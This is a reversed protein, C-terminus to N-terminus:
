MRPYGALEVATLLFAARRDEDGHVAESGNELFDRPRPMDANQVVAIRSQRLDHEVEEATLTVQDDAVVLRIKDAVQGVVADRGVALLTAQRMDLEFDTLIEDGVLLALALPGVPQDPEKRLREFHEVATNRLCCPGCRSCG